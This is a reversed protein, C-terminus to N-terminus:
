EGSRLARDRAAREAPSLRWHVSGRGTDAWQRLLDYAARYRECDGDSNGGGAPPTSVRSVDVITWDEGDFGRDAVFARAAVRHQEDAQEGLYYTMSAYDPFVAFDGAALAAASLADPVGIVDPTARDTDGGDGTEKDGGSRDAGIEIAPPDAALWILLGITVIGAGASVRGIWRALSVRIARTWWGRRGTAIGGAAQAIGGYTYPDDAAVELRGDRNDDGGRGNVTVAVRPKPDQEPPPPSYIWEIAGRGVWNGERLDVVDQNPPVAPPVTEASTAAADIDADTSQAAEAKTLLDAIQKDTYGQERLARAFGAADVPRTNDAM